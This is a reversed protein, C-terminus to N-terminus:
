VPLRLSAPTGPVVRQELTYFERLVAPRVGFSERLEGLSKDRETAVDIPHLPQGGALAAAKVGLDFALLDKGKITYPEAYSSLALRYAEVEAENLSQAAGATYGIVYAEDQDILGRGLLIHIADHQELTCAGALAIPSAPNEFLRVLAPVEDASFGPLTDLVQGLTLEDNNLGPYWERWHTTATNADIPQGHADRQLADPDLLGLLAERPDGVHNDIEWIDRLLQRTVGRLLIDRALQRREAPLDALAEFHAELQKLTEEAITQTSPM